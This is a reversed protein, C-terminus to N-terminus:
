DDGSATSKGAAKGAAGSTGSGSKATGGSKAKSKSSAKSSAKSKPPTKSRTSSGGGGDGSDAADAGSDRGRSETKYFGGGKFVLPPANLQRTAPEGCRECPHETPSGFPQQLEYRHGATCKYDYRPM